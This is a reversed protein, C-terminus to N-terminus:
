VKERLVETLEQVKGHRQDESIDQLLKVVRDVSKHDSIKGAGIFKGGDPNGAANKIYCTRLRVARKRPCRQQVKSGPQKWKRWDVAPDGRQPMNERHFRLHQWLWQVSVIREPVTGRGSSGDQDGLVVSGTVSLPDLLGESM